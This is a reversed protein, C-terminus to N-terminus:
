EARPLFKEFGEAWSRVEFEILTYEAVQNIVYPDKAMIERAAQKSSANLMIFGGTRPVQPGSCVTIGRAYLDKLFARHAELYRDVEELPKLYVSHFAFMDYIKHYFYLWKERCPIKNIVEIRGAQRSKSEPQVQCLKSVLCIISSKLYDSLYKGL